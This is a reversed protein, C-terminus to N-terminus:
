VAAGANGYVDLLQLRTATLRDVLMAAFRRMLEYGLEHDAESKGRLCAADFSVLGTAELVRADLQWRYPPFLWSWGIVEPAGLTEIPLGGRGPAHVELRVTGSRILFFKEAPDGEHFLFAGADARENRACGAILALYDKSLGDFAPAVAILDEITQM